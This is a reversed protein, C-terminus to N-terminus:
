KSRRTGWRLAAKLSECELDNRIDIYATILAQDALSLHEAMTYVREELAACQESLALLDLDSVKDIDVANCLDELYRKM